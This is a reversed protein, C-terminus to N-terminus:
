RGTSGFSGENRETNSLEETEVVREVSAHEIIGQAIRDGQKIFYGHEMGHLDSECTLNHLVVKVEGRYSVDVVGGGTRLGKAAMSSRDEIKFFPLMGMKAPAELEIAIGTKIMKTTGVPIFVTEASYLDYGCSGGEAQTPLKALPHLKKVKM